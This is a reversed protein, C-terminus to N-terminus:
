YFILKEGEVRVSVKGNWNAIDADTIRIDTGTAFPLDVVYANGDGIKIGPINHGEGDTSHDSYIYIEGVRSQIQPLEAWEATTKVAVIHLDESTLDGEVTEDNITPKNDLKSYDHEYVSAPIEADGTIEIEPDINGDVEGDIPILMEDNDM